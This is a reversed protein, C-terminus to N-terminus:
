IPQDSVPAKTIAASTKECKRRVLIAILTSVILFGLSLAIRASFLRSWDGSIWIERLTGIFFTIVFITVAGGLATGILYDGFRVKTLGLGYSIPAFPLCMLRLFLVANFGKREILDDYRKFSDGITSSVFERGLGRAILFAIAAGALAGPWVCAFGWYPGYIAAGIAILVTGPIFICTGAACFIVLLAPGMLGAESIIRQLRQPTFFTKISTCEVLGVAIGALILLIFAKVFLKRRGTEVMKGPEEM